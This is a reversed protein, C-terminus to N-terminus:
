TQSQKNPIALSSLYARVIHGFARELSHTSTECESSTALRPNKEGPCSKFIGAEPNQDLYAKLTQYVSKMFEKFKQFVRELEISPSKGEFAYREWSEAFKEHYFRKEEFSFSDFQLIQENIPGSIGLHTFLVNM